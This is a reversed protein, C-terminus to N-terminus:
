SIKFARIIENIDNEQKELEKFIFKFAADAKLLDFGHRSLSLIVECEFESSYDEEEEEEEDDDYEIISDIDEEETRGAM